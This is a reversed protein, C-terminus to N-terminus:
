LPKCYWYAVNLITTYNFQERIKTTGIIILTELFPVKIAM